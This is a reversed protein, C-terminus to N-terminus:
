APAFSPVLSEGPLKTGGAPPTADLMALITPFIDLITVKGDHARHSGTKIWLIGDPHHRGAKIEDITYFHEHYALRRDPDGQFYLEAGEPPRTKIRCSIYLARAGRCSFPEAASRM